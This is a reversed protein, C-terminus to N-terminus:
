RILRTTPPVSWSSLPTQLPLSAVVLYPKAMQLLPASIVRVRGVPKVADLHGASVGSSASAYPDLPRLPAQDVPSLRWARSAASVAMIRSQASRNM